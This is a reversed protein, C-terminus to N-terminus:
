ASASMREALERLPPEYAESFTPFAHVVDTLVDIAIEARIALVAEGIWEEAHAGIAAAGLLTRRKRDGVLILRGSTLGTASARATHGVEMSASVADYGLERAQSSSLGVCAVAPETYVGRPIARHNARTERGLLNAAVIRGHYNATHTYGAIGTIDGAAWVHEQGRVRCRDDVQLFGDRGPRIRLAELGLGNLRPAQGIAVILKQATLPTGDDLVLRATDARREARVAKRSLRVDIGERRFVDALIEAVAPEEAPILRPARQVITVRAGFRALVQAIECGVPGGGLVLASEPLEPATYFDESTWMSARELGEIEPIAAVTGVSVVLDVWGIARGDIELVGARVVRGRGRHLAVGLARLERGRDSDDLRAAIAHRRVAAAGYALRGEDLSLPRSVAGVTHARGIWHRVEASHLMAKSPMCAFYPCEGGLLREEVVAVSKGGRAVTTAVIEGASGGGLVM